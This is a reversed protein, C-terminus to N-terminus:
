KTTKETKEIKLLKGDKAKLLKELSERMRKRARFAKVKTNSESWNMFAAVTRVGRRLATTQNATKGRREIFSLREFSVRWRRLRAPFHEVDGAPNAM